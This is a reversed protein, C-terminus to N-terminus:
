WNQQGIGWSEIWLKEERLSDESEKILSSLRGSWYNWLLMAVGLLAISITLMFGCIVGYTETALGYNTWWARLIGVVCFVSLPYCLAGALVLPRVFKWFDKM